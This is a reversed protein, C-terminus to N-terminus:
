VEGAIVITAAIFGMINGGFEVLNGTNMMGYFNIFAFIQMVWVWMGRSM